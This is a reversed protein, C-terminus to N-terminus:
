SLGGRVALNGAGLRSLNMVEGIAQQDRTLLAKMGLDVTYKIVACRTLRTAVVMLRWGLSYPCEGDFYRRQGVEPNSNFRSTGFHGMVDEGKVLQRVIDRPQAPAGNGALQEHIHDRLAQPDLPQPPGSGPRQGGGAGDFSRPGHASDPRHNHFAGTRHLAQDPPRGTATAAPPQPPSGPPQAPNMGGGGGGGGIQPSAGSPTQTPDLPKRPPIPSPSSMSSPIPSPQRQTSSLGQPPTGLRQSQQQMPNQGPALPIQQQQQQPPVPGQSLIDPHGQQQMPPQNTQGPRQQPPLQHMNPQGMHQQPPQGMHQPINTNGPIQPRSNMSGPVGMGGQQAGAPPAGMQQPTQSAHPPLQPPVTNAGMRPVGSQGPHIPQQMSEPPAAGQQPILPAAARPGPQQMGLPNSGPPISGQTSPSPHQSQQNPPQSNQGGYQQHDPVRPPDAGHELEDAEESLGGLKPKSRRDRPTRRGAGPVRYYLSGHRGIGALELKSPPENLAEEEPSALSSADFQPANIHEDSQQSQEQGSIHLNFSQSSSPHNQGYENGPFQPYEHTQNQSYQDNPDPRDQQMHQRYNQFNQAKSSNPGNFYANSPSNGRGSHQAYSNYASQANSQDGRPYNSQETSYASFNQSQMESRHIGHSSQPDHFPQQQGWIQQGPGQQEDTLHLDVNSPPYTTIHIDIEDENAQRGGQRPDNYAM